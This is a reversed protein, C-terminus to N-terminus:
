DRPPKNYGRDGYPQLRELWEKEMQRLEWRTGTDETVEKEEMVQYTFSDEGLESWDRQLQSNAHRGMDDSFAQAFLKINGDIM